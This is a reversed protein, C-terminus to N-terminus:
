PGARPTQTPAPARCLYTGCLRDALSRRQPDVAAWTHGLGLCATSLLAVVSHALLRGLEPSRGQANVLRVRCLAEGPTRGLFGRFILQGILASFLAAILAPLLAAREFALRHMLADLADYPAPEFRIRILGAAWLAGLFLLLLSLDFLLAALRRRYSSLWLARM